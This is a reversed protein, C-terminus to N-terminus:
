QGEAHAPSIAYRQGDKIQGPLDWLMWVQVLLAILVAVIGLEIRDMRMTLRELQFTVQSHQSCFKDTM